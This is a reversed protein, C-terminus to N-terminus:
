SVSGLRSSLGFIATRTSPAPQGAAMELPREAAPTLTQHPVAMLEISPTDQEFAMSLGAPAATLDRRLPAPHRPGNGFDLPM